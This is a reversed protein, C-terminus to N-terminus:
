KLHELFSMDIHLANQTISRCMFIDRLDGWGGNHVVALQKPKQVLATMETPFLKNLSKLKSQDAEFMTKINGFDCSGISIKSHSDLKSNGKQFHTGCGTIGMHQSRALAPLAVKWPKSTKPKIVQASLHMLTWDWNYDDYICFDDSLKILDDVWKKSAVMAM